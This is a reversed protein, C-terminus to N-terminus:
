ITKQRRRPTMQLVKPTASDHGTQVTNRYLGTKHIYDAVAPGVLSRLQSGSRAAAKRVHTASVHETVEPLLHITIGPLVIEGKAAQNRLARRVPEPPRLSEPLADGLDGLSYGPRSAVIFETERLVAEPQHWKAIDLFADIGIIFFLRDTAKLTARIRRVTDISYAPRNGLEHPSEVLSPTMGAQGSIALAVMAYRHIFPTLAPDHKHPPAGSPIFLIQKLGYDHQAAKAVALHGRHIPDFTGGFLAVNM